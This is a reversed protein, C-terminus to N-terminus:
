ALKSYKIILARVHQPKYLKHEWLLRDSIIKEKILRDVGGMKSLLAPVNNMNMLDLRKWSNFDIKFGRKILYSVANSLEQDEEVAAKDFRTLNNSEILSILKNAYQPDTAYGAKHIAECAKKYDTEGVVAKYRSAGTLLKSHDTISEQWSDYARFGATITTPTNPNYYEVTKGTWVKGRWNAAKIGFLANAERTLTSNGNNSELIAQAITLSALVKSTKADAQAVPGIKNIFQERTYAM